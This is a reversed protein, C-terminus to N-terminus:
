RGKLNLKKYVCDKNTPSENNMVVSSLFNMKVCFELQNNGGIGKRNTLSFFLRPVYKSIFLLLFGQNLIFYLFYLVAVVSDWVCM